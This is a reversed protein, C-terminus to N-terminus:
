PNVADSARGQLSKELATIRSEITDLEHLKSLSTLLYALKCASALDMRGVKALRYVRELEHRVNRVNNLPIRIRKATAPAPPVLQVVVARSAGDDDVRAADLV